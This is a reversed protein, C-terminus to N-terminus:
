YNGKTIITFDAEYDGWSRYNCTINEFKIRFSWSGARTPVGVIDNTYPSEKRFELGPPLRGSVLRAIFTPNTGKPRCSIVAQWEFPLGVTAHRTTMPTGYEDWGGYTPYRVLGDKQPATYTQTPACGSLLLLLVLANGLVTKPSLAIM